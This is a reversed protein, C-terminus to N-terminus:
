ARSSRRRAGSQCARPHFQLRANAAPRTRRRESRAGRRFPRAHRPDIDAVPMVVFVDTTSFQRDVVAGDGFKAGCRLYGKVLPPLEGLTRACTSPTERSSRWIRAATRGARSARWDPGSAARHALFSLARAHAIPDVGEFSACGFMADVGYHDIYLASAAGCCNSRASRVIPSCCAPAASNSFASARTDRSCRRLTSNRRATSASNRRARGGPAPPSLHRRSEAQRPRFPQARRSRRRSSSRLRSRLPLRRPPHAGRHPRPDRRGGRLLGQLAPAAGQPNGEQDRRPAIRAFGVRFLTGGFTGRKKKRKPFRLLTALPRREADARDRKTM